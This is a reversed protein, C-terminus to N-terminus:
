RDVRWVKRATMIERPKVADCAALMRARAAADDPEDDRRADCGNGAGILIAAGLGMTQAGHVATLLPAFERPAKVLGCSAAGDAARKIAPCPGTWRKFVHAGLPCLQAECCQGCGNCSAGYAPKEIARTM